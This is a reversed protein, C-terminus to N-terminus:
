KPTAFIIFIESLCDNKCGFKILFKKGGIRLSWPEEIHARPHQYKPCYGLAFKLCHYTFMVPVRDVPSLEFAAAVKELNMKRLFGAAHRNMVNALYSEPVVGSAKLREASVIYDPAVFSRRLRTFYEERKQSLRDCAERRIESLLSSYVFYDAEGDALLDLKRLLFCTDGLKSLQRWYNERQPQRAVEFVATRKVEVTVGHGDSLRLLLGGAVIELEMDVPIKRVASPKQLLQDFRYDLNRYITMGPRLKAIVDSGGAPYIRHLGIDNKNLRFGFIDGDSNKAILGDGNHLAAAEEGMSFSDKEVRRIVGIREGTSKPTDMSWIEESRGAETERGGHIYYSTFGRNFSAEPRPEFTYTCRGDSAAQWEDAHEELVADVKKRYYATVNKVYELDKLRGEIKLSSVGAAIMEELAGSRNMDKLSLLHKHGVIKKGRGDLLDMSLRCPQACEGRNASRGNLAASLYCQGSVGVCLAGHVFCELEVDVAEHIARIQAVSLERALVVRKMGLQQLLRVKEVTRNDMQTSAHLEIPPLEMSLLGWDQVILADAGAEYLQWALRGAEELEADTMVTNLAVFTRAGFRHGYAALREIEDVTNGAAARAGFRPAGIYVADAGHNFAEIGIDANRAPSLLEIKRMRKRNQKLRKQGRLYDIFNLGVREPM